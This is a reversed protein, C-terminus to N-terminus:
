PGGKPIAAWTAAAHPPKRPRGAEVQGATGLARGGRLPHDTTRFQVASRNSGAYARTRIRFRQTMRVSNPVKSATGKNEKGKADCSALPRSAVGGAWPAAAARLAEGIGLIPGGAVLPRPLGGAPPAHRYDPSLEISQVITAMRMMRQSNPKLRLMAPPRIWRSSTTARTTTM